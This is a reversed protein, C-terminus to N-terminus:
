MLVLRDACALGDFHLFQAAANREFLLSWWCKFLHGAILLSLLLVVLATWLVCISHVGINVDSACTFLVFPRANRDHCKAM